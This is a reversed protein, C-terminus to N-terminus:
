WGQEKNKENKANKKRRKGLTKHKLKVCWYNRCISSYGISTTSRDSALMVDTLREMKMGWGEIRHGEGRWSISYEWRSSPVFLMPLLHIMNHVAMWWCYYMKMTFWDLLIMWKGESIYLSTMLTLSEYRDVWSHQNGYLCRLKGMCFWCFGYADIIKNWLKM